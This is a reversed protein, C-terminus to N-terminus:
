NVGGRFARYLLYAGAGVAGWVLPSSMWTKVVPWEQIRFAEGHEWGAYHGHSLDLPIRMGAFQGTKPYAALYVHSFMRPAGADAAITVFSCPVGASLLHAAGYMAFDDCDGIPQALQAQDAPRILTEVIPNWIDLDWPAAISEDRQFQMARFGGRRAIWNWTDLVPDGTAAAAAADEKIIPRAADECAYDRMLDIVQQVQTDPDASVETLRYSCLGLEPHELMGSRPLEAIQYAPAVQPWWRVILLASDITHIIIIIPRYSPKVRSSVTCSVGFGTSTCCRFRPFDGCFVGM